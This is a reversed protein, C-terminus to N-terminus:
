QDGLLAANFADVVLDFYNRTKDQCERMGRVSSSFVDTTSSSSSSSSATGNGGNDAETFQWKDPHWERARTRYARKIKRKEGDSIVFTTENHTDKKEHGKRGQRGNRKRKGSAGTTAGVEETDEKSMGSVDLPDLGLRERASQYVHPVGVRSKVRGVGYRDGRLILNGSSGTVYMNVGHAALSEACFIGALAGGLVVGNFGEEHPSPLLTTAGHVDTGATGATGARRMPSMLRHYLFDCGLQSWCLDPSQEGHVALPALAPKL